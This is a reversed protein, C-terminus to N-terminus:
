EDGKNAFRDVRDLLGSISASRLEFRAYPTGELFDPQVDSFGPSVVTRRSSKKKEARGWRVSRLSDGEIELLRLGKAGLIRGPCFLSPPRPGPAEGLLRDIEARVIERKTLSEFLPRRTHGEIAVIGLRSASRYLRQETKYRERKDDEPLRRERRMARHLYRQMYDSLYDRGAYPPSAQHGHLLLISNKPGDLRLGHSLEYPYSGLRLLALDREGVIKRLRGGESFADFLAYMKPWAALIDKLWFDRLDEVDGNLVLTYGRPLYWRGLVSFVAKRAGELEDKKGGDGMRLDAAIVYHSEPGLAEFPSHAAIDAMSSSLIAMKRKKM